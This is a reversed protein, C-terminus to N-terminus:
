CLFLNSLFRKFVDKSEVPECASTATKSVIKWRLGSLTVIKKILEISDVVTCCFGYMVIVAAVLNM